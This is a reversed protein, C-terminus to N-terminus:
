RTLCVFVSYSQALEGIVAGVPTCTDLQSTDCDQVSDCFCCLFIVFAAGPSAELSSRVLRIKALVRAHRRGRPPGPLPAGRGRARRRLGPVDGRSRSRTPRPPLGTSSFGGRPGAGCGCGSCIIGRPFCRVAHLTSRRRQPDPHACRRRCVLFVVGLLQICQNSDLIEPVPSAVRLRCGAHSIAKPTDRFSAKVRAPFQTQDSTRLNYGM